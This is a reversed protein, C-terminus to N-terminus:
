LFAFPSLSSQQGRFSHLIGLGSLRMRSFLCSPASCQVGAQLSAIVIGTRVNGDDLLVDFWRLADFACASPTGADKTIMLTKLM